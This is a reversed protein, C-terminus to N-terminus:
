KTKLFLNRKGILRMRKYVSFNSAFKLNLLKLPKKGQKANVNRVKPTDISERSKSQVHGLVRTIKLM